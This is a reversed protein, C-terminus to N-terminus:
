SGLARPDLGADPERSRPFGAEGEGGAQTRERATDRETLYIFLIKLFFTKIDSLFYVSPTIL